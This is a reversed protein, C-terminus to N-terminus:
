KRKKPRNEPGWRQNVYECTLRVPRVLWYLPELYVPLRIVAWDSEGPSISRLSQFYLPQLKDRWRERARFHFGKIQREDAPADWDDAFLADRISRSLFDLWPERDIRTAVDVPLPADLLEHALKLGLLVVRVCGLGKAEDFLKSWDLGSHSRLLQAVDCIKKLECRAVLGDKAIQICSILLLDEVPVSPIEGAPTSLPSLRSRLRPLDIRIPFRRSTMSLHVDLYISRESQVLALEWKYQSVVKYGLTALAKLTPTLESPEILIDLDAFQRLSVDGYARIALEVGKFPIVGIDHSHLHSIIKVLERTLRLNQGTSALYRERLHNLVSEPGRDKLGHYLLPVIQHREALQVVSEWSPRQRILTDIRSQDAPELTKRACALLLNAERSVRSDM